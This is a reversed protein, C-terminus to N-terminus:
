WYEQVSEASDGDPWIPYCVRRGDQVEMTYFVLNPVSIASSAIWIVVAISITTKKGMRPRLPYMIAM